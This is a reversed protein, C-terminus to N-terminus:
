TLCPAPRGPDAGGGPPAPRGGPVARLKDLGQGLRTLDGGAAALLLDVADPELTLKIRGARHAIWNKVRQPPLRGADVATSPRILDAEPQEAGGQVLAPVTDPSPNELYALLADPVRSKKRLQEVGRLVVLRREALMPPTNVLSHLGEADLEGAARQDVNFDRLGADVTADLLAAVAEDKLVDEDGHFYYVPDPPGQKLRRFFEDLTIAGM